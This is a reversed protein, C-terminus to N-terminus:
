ISPGRSDLRQRYCLRISRWTGPRFPRPQLRFWSQSHSKQSPKSPEQPQTRSQNKTAPFCLNVPDHSSDFHTQAASDAHVHGGRGGPGFHVGSAVDARGVAPVPPAVLLVAVRPAPSKELLRTTSGTTQYVLPYVAVRRLFGARELTRLRALVRTASAAIEFRRAQEATCYGGLHLITKLFTQLREDLLALRDQFYEAM